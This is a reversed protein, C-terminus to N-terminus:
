LERSPPEVVALSETNASAAVPLREATPNGRILGYLRNQSPHTRYYTISFSTMAIVVTSYVTGDDLGATQPLNSVFTSIAWSGTVAWALTEPLAFNRAAEKIEPIRTSHSGAAKIANAVKGPWFVKPYWATAMRVAFPLVFVLGLEVALHIYWIAGLDLHRTSVLMACLATLWAIPTAVLGVFRMEHRSLSLGIRLRDSALHWAGLAATAVLVSLHVWATNISGFTILIISLFVGTAIIGTSLGLAVAPWRNFYNHM